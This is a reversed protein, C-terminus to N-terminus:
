KNSDFLPLMQLIIYRPLGYLVLIATVDCRRILKQPYTRMGVLQHGGIRPRTLIQFTQFPLSESDAFSLIKYSLNSTHFSM